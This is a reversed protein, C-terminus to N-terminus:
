YSTWGSTFDQGTTDPTVNNLVKYFNQLTCASCTVASYYAFVDYNSGLPVMVKYTASRKGIIGQYSRLKRDMTNQKKLYNSGSTITYAHPTVTNSIPQAVILVGEVLDLSDFGLSGSIPKSARKITFDQNPTTTGINVTVNSIYPEAPAAPEWVNGLGILVTNLGGVPVNNIIYYGTLTDSLAEGWIKSFKKVQLNMGGVPQNTVEDIVSGSVAGVPYLYITKPSTFAAVATTIAQELRYNSLTGQIVYSGSLPTLTCLGSGDTIGSYTTNTNGVNVATIAVGGLPTTRDSADKAYIRLISSGTVPQLTINRGTIVSNNGVNIRTPFAGYFTEGTIKKTFIATVSVSGADPSINSITYQGFTNVTTTSSVGDDARVERGVNEFDDPNVTTGDPMYVTGSISAPQIDECIFNVGTIEGVNPPVVLPNGDYWDLDYGQGVAYLRYTGPMMNYIRFYGRNDGDSDNTAVVATYEPHGEVFVTVRATLGPPDVRGNSKDKRMVRGRITTGGLNSDSNSVIATLETHKIVPTTSGPIKDTYEVVVKMMKLDSTPLDQQTRAVLNGDDDEEANQVWKYVKMTNSGINEVNEADSPNGWPNTENELNTLPQPLLNDPTVPISRFPFHKMYEINESAINHSITKLKTSQISMYIRSILQMSGMVLLVVVMSTVITEIFTLGKQEKLFKMNVPREPM